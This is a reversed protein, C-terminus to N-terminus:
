HINEDTEFPIAILTMKQFKFNQLKRHCNPNLDNRKGPLCKKLAEKRLPTFENSKDVSTFEEDLSNSFGCTEAHPKGNALM